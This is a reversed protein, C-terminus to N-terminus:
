KKKVFRMKFGIWKYYEGSDDISIDGPTIDFGSSNKFDEKFKKIILDYLGDPKEEIVYPIQDIISSDKEILLKNFASLMDDEIKYKYKIDGSQIDTDIQSVCLGNNFTYQYESGDDRVVCKGTFYGNKDLSGSISNGTGDKTILKFDGNLVNNIFNLSSTQTIIKGKQTANITSIWPGNPLGDNFSGTFSTTYSTAASNRTAPMILTQKVIWNGKKLNASYNGSITVSISVGKGSAKGKYSFIGSKIRELKEDQYYTYTATGKLEDALFGGIIKGYSKLNYDGNYTKLQQAFCMTSILIFGFILIVKKM